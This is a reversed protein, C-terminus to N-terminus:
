GADDEAIFAVSEVLLEGTLRKEIEARQRGTLPAASKVTASKVYTGAGDAQLSLSLRVEMGSAHFVAAYYEELAEQSRVLVGDEFSSAQPAAAPLLARGKRQPWVPSANGFAHLVAVVIYLGAVAKICKRAGDGPVLRVILGGTICAACFAKVALRITQM